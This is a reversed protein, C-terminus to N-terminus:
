YALKLGYILIPQFIILEVVKLLLLLLIPSLDISGIAPVWRKALQMPPAAIAQVISGLPSFRLAPIWSMIAAIIISWFYINIVKSGLYSFSIVLLGAARPLGHTKAVLFLFVNSIELLFVPFIVAFDYGQYCPLFRRMMRVVPETLKIIFQFAPNHWNGGLKHLLFRLLLIFLYADIIFNLM